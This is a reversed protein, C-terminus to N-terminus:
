VCFIGEQFGSGGLFLIIPEVATSIGTVLDRGENIQGEGIEGTEQRSENARGEKHLLRRLM